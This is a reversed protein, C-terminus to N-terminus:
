ARAHYRLSVTGNAFRRENVLDLKIRVNDPLVRIGGGLVIPMVLLHYEDVLGSRIAQGALTPGGVSLDQPMQAKLDRVAQPDFERELRTKATSVTELSKSHVIKDAAQWIRAFELMAPTLGPIVDPTEWIALTEYMKRGYLYTGIPRLVENIFAFGEEDPASWDYDREAIYGDVSTPTFYILKAM